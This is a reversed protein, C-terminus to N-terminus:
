GETLQNILERFRRPAEERWRRATPEFFPQPRTGPHLGIFRWGVGPILVPSGIWHPRTGHEVFWAYFLDTYVEVKTPSLRHKISGRLAGTRVPARQKAEEEVERGIQGLAQEISHPLGFLVRNLKALAGENRVEIWVDLSM